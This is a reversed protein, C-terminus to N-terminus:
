GLSILTAIGSILVLMSYKTDCANQISSNFLRCFTPELHFQNTRFIVFDVDDNYKNLVKM